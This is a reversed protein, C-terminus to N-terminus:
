SSHEIQDMYAGQLACPGPYAFMVEFVWDRGMGMNRYRMMSRYQGADILGKQRYNSWTLGGDKSYRVCIANRSFAGSTPGGFDFNFDWNFDRDSGQASPSARTSYDTNYDSNFDPGTNGQAVASGAAFDVVFATPTIFQLDALQHPFTRRCVIPQGNDSYVKPDLAYIQGTAWDQGVITPPYGGQAGVSAYFCTRDRHQKGDRDTYTRRHWQRTSLDYGWSKGATPFHFIVFTHGAQQFTGGIADAITLYQSWEYELARTSFAQVGYGNSKVAVAQGQANRSLWFLDVDAQVLSYPAACGYPIFVNPYEQYPFPTGGSLWWIESSQDGIIWAVRLNFALTAIPDPKSDKDAVQLANFTASNPNSVLWQNTGPTAFAFYTDSFDVRLSGNFTNTPDVLTALANNSLALTYGVNSGDVIVATTGNDQASIPTTLNRISGAASWVFNQDISYITSGVCAILKGNSLTFLGRGVSPAPPSSLARLGERPYHTVPVPPDQDEPNLEPFLNESIQFDSIHNRAKYAGGTLPILKQSRIV